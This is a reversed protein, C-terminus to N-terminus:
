SSLGSQDMFIWYRSIRGQEDLELRRVVEATAGM